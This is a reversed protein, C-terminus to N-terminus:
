PRRKAPRRGGTQRGLHDTLATAVIASLSQETDVAHHKVARILEVPLYVNFQKVDRAM